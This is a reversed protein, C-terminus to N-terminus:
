FLISISKFKASLEKLTSDDFGQRQLWSGCQTQPFEARSGSATAPAAWRAGVGRSIWRRQWRQRWSADRLYTGTRLYRTSSVHIRIATNRIRFGTGIQGRSEPDPILSPYFDPDPDRIRSSYGTDYKRSSLFCNKPNCISLNKLTSGPYPISFNPDPISFLRIRSLCGPDAVSFLRKLDSISNKFSM